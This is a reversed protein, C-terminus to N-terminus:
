KSSIVRLWAQMCLCPRAWLAQLNHSPDSSPGRIKVSGPVPGPPLHGWGVLPWPSLLLGSPLLPQGPQTVGPLPGPFIDGPQPHSTKRAGTGVLGWDASEPTSRPRGQLLLQPRPILQSTPRPDPEGAGSLGKRGLESSGLTCGHQAPAAGAELLVTCVM